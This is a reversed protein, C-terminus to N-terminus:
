HLTRQSSPNILFYVRRGCEQIAGMPPPQKYPSAFKWLPEWIAVAVESLSGQEPFIMTASASPIRQGMTRRVSVVRVRVARGLPVRHFLPLSISLAEGPSVCSSTLARREDTNRTNGKKRNKTIKKIYSSLNENGNNSKVSSPRIARTNLIEETPWKKCFGHLPGSIKGGALRSRPPMRWAASLPPGSLDWAARKMYRVWNAHRKLSTRRPFSGAM